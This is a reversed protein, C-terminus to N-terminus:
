RKKNFTVELIGNNMTYSFDKSKVFSPLKKKIMVGSKFKDILYEVSDAVRKRVNVLLDFGNVTITVDKYSYGPLEFIVYVNDGNEIFDIVRDEEEGEIFEKNARTRTRPRSSGLFGRIVEEFPDEEDFFSM